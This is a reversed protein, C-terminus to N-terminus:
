RYRDERLWYGVCRARNEYDDALGNMRARDATDGLGGALHRYRVAQEQLYTEGAQEDALREPGEREHTM